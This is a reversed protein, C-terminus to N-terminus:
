PQVAMLILGKVSDIYKHKARGSFGAFRMVIMKLKLFKKSYKKYSGGSEAYAKHSNNRTKM